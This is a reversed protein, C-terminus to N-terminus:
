IKTPFRTKWHLCLVQDAPILRITGRAHLLRPINLIKLELSTRQFMSMKHPPTTILKLSKYPLMDITGQLLSASLLEICVLPLWAQCGTFVCLEYKEPDPDPDPDPHMPRLM